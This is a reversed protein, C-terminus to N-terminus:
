AAEGFRERARNILVRNQSMWARGCTRCQARAQDVWKITRVPGLPVVAEGKCGPCIIRVRENRRADTRPM